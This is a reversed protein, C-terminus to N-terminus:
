YYERPGLLCTHVTCETESNYLPDGCKTIESNTIGAIEHNMKLTLNRSNREIEHNKFLFLLFFFFESFKRFIKPIKEPNKESKKRINETDKKRYHM